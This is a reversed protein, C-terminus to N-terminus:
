LGWGVGLNVSTADTDDLKTYNVSVGLTTKIADGGSWFNYGLGITNGAVTSFGLRLNAGAIVNFAALMGYQSDFGLSTKDNFDFMVTYGTTADANDDLSSWHSNISFGVGALAVSLTIISVVLMNKLQKM